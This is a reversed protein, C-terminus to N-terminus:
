TKPHQDDDHKAPGIQNLVTDELRDAAREGFLVIREVVYTCSSGFVSTISCCVDQPWQPMFYHLLVGTAYGVALSLPICVTMFTWTM